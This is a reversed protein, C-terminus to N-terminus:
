QTLIQPKRAKGQKRDAREKRDTSASHGAVQQEQQWQKLEEGWVVSQMEKVTFRFM